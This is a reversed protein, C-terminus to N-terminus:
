VTMATPELHSLHELKPVLSRRAIRIAELLLHQKSLSCISLLRDRYNLKGGVIDPVQLSTFKIKTLEDSVLITTRKRINAKM